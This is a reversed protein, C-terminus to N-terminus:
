SRNSQDKLDKFSNTCVGFEYSSFMQNTQEEQLLSEQFSSNEIQHFPRTCIEMKRKLHM